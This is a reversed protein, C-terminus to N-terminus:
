KNLGVEVAAVTTMLQNSDFPPSIQFRRPWSKAEFIPAVQPLLSCDVCYLDFSLSKTVHM